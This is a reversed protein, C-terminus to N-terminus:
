QSDNFIDIPNLNIPSGTRIELDLEHIIQPKKYPKRFLSEQNFIQEEDKINIDNM